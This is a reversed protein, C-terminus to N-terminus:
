TTGVQLISPVLQALFAVILSFFWSNILFDIQSRIDQIQEGFAKPIVSTLRSWIVVGDAGYIERPYVEFARIANGFRTALVKKEQLPMRKLLEQRLKAYNEKEDETITGNAWKNYLEDIKGLCKRLRRRNRGKLWDALWDPFPFAYGELFRYLWDNLIFLVVAFAWVVLLLYVASKLEKDAMADLWEKPLRQDRFLVLLVVAFLLTPLFFGLIFSRDALKPLSSLM